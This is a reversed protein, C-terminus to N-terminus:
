TAGTWGCCTSRSSPSRSRRRRDAQDRAREGPEDAAPAGRVLEDRRRRLRRDRRRAGREGPERARPGDGAGPVQGSTAATAPSWARRTPRWRRARGPDRRVETRVVVRPRRVGAVRGRRADAADRAALRADAGAPPFRPVRALRDTDERLPVRPRPVPPRAAPLSRRRPGSSRSTGARTSSASRAPATTARRSRARSALRVRAPPGRHPGGAAQGRAADPAGQPVAWSALAGDRELRVDYHLRTARAEPDVFSNGAGAAAGPAPEPTRETRLARKRLYEASSPPGEVAAIVNARLDDDPTAPTSMPPIPGPSRAIGSPRSRRRSTRRARHLVGDFLDGLKRSATGCTPSASTRRRAGGAEVEEWTLPTSVTAGPEPRLSYVAAINAGRRNM